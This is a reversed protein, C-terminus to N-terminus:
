SAMNKCYSSSGGPAYGGEFETADLPLMLPSTQAAGGVQVTIALRLFRRRTAIVDERAHRAGKGLVVGNVNRLLRRGRERVYDEGSVWRKVRKRLDPRNGSQVYGMVKCLAQRHSGCLFACACLRVSDVTARKATAVPVHRVVCPYRWPRARGPASVRALSCPPVKLDSKSMSLDVDLMTLEPDLNCESLMVSLKRSGGPTPAAEVPAHSPSVDAGVDMASQASGATSAGDSESATDPWAAGDGNDNADIANILDDMEGTICEHGYTHQPVWVCFCARPLAETPALPCKRGLAAACVQGRPVILFAETVGRRQSPATTAIVM